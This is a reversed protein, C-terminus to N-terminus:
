PAVIHADDETLLHRIFEAFGEEIRGMPEYDLQELEAKTAETWEMKSIGYMKDIHHAAEHSTVALDGAFKGKLRIVEQIHKYIGAPKGGVRGAYIPVGFDRSITAIIAHNSVPAAKAEMEVPMMFPDKAVFAHDGGGTLSDGLKRLKEDIEDLQQKKDWPTNILEDLEKISNGFFKLRAKAAIVDQQGKAPLETLADLIGKGTHSTGRYVVTGDALM